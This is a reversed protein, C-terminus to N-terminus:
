LAAVIFGAAMWRSLRGIVRPWVEAREAQPISDYALAEDAGSAFAEAAGSLVRNIMFIPFAWPGGVPVCAFVLMEVVMLGASLVLLNRRGMVDALAGCPVDLLVISFAWATNLAAFQSLNLGFDLFLVTYVPYYFRCNFLLRFWIFLATNRPM